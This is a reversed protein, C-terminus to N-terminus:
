SGSPNAKPAPLCQDRHAFDAYYCVGGQTWNRQVGWFVPGSWMPSLRYAVVALVLLILASWLPPFRRMTDSPQEPRGYARKIRELQQRVTLSRQAVGIGQDPAHEGDEGCLRERRRKAAEGVNFIGV